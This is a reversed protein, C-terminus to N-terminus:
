LADQLGLLVAATEGRDFGNPGNYVQLQSQKKLDAWPTRLVGFWCIPKTKQVKFHPKNGYNDKIYSRVSIQAM